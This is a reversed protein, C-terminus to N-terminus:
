IVAEGINVDSHTIMPGSISDVPLTIQEPSDYQKLKTDEGDHVANLESSNEHHLIDIQEFRTVDSSARSVNTQSNRFGYVPLRNQPSCSLQHEPVNNILLLTKSVRSGPNHSSSHNMYTTTTLESCVSERKSAFNNMLRRGFRDSFNLLVADLNKREM